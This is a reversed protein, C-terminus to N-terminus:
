RDPIERNAEAVLAIWVALDRSGVFRRRLNGHRDILVYTPIEQVNYRFVVTGEEDVLVLNNVKMEDALNRISDNLAARSLAAHSAHDHSGQHQHGQNHEEDGCSDQPGVSSDFAVTIVALNKSKQEQLQKLAILDDFSAANGLKWFCVLVVKGRFDSLRVLRGDLDRLAFDKAPLSLTDTKPLTIPKPFDQHHLTWWERWQQAGRQITELQAASAFPEESRKFQPLAHNAKIGFDLGTAKRLVLAASVVVRSDPDDLLTMAMAVDNSGASRQLQQLAAARVGPDVDNLQQRLLARFEPRQTQALVNLARERVALDSDRAAETVITELQTPLAPESQCHAVLYEAVFLRATLNGSRWIRELAQGRNPAEDALESLVTDSPADSRLTLAMALEHRVPKWIVFAVLGFVALGALWWGDRRNFKCWHHNM